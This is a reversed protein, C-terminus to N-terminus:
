VRSFVTVWRHGVPMRAPASNVKGLMFYTRGLFIKAVPTSFMLLTLAPSIWIPSFPSVEIDGSCIRSRM